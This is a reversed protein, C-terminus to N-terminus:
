AADVDHRYVVCAVHQADLDLDEFCWHELCAGANRDHRLRPRGSPDVGICIDQLTRSVGEGIAKVYAEKRVWARAFAQARQTAPVALLSAREDASLVSEFAAIDALDARVAEVDIGIPATNDLAHLVWDGSHSTNFHLKFRPDLLCPKGFANAGFEIDASDVGLREALLRRLSSRAVVFRARDAETRFRAARQRERDDLRWWHEDFRVTEASVRLTHVERRRSQAANM